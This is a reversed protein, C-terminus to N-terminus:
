YEMIYYMTINQIGKWQGIFLAIRYYLRVFFLSIWLLVDYYCLWGIFLHLYLTFTKAVWKVLVRWSRLQAVLGFHILGSLQNWKPLSSRYRQVTRRQIPLMTQFRSLLVAMHFVDCEFGQVHNNQLSFIMIIAVRRRFPYWSKWNHAEIQETQHTM